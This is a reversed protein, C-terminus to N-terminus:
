RVVTSKVDVGTDDPPIFWCTWYTGDWVPAGKIEVRFGLAALFAEIGEPKKARVYRLRTTVPRM